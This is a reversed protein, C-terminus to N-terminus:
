RWRLVVVVFIWGFCRKSERIGAHSCPLVAAADWGVHIVVTRGFLLPVLWGFLFFFFILAMRRDGCVGVKKENTPTLVVVHDRGHVGNAVSAEFGRVDITGAKSKEVGEKKYYSLTLDDRLVFWRKKWSKIKGGRKTLWGAHVDM